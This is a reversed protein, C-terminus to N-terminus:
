EIIRFLGDETSRVPGGELTRANEILESYALNINGGGSTEGAFDFIGLINSSTNVAGNGTANFIEIVDAFREARFSGAGTFGVFSTGKFPIGTIKTSGGGSITGVSAIIAEVESRIVIRSPESEKYAIAGVDRIIRGTIGRPNLDIKELNEIRSVLEPVADSGVFNRSSLELDIQMDAGSVTHRLSTVRMSFPQIRGFPSVSVWDGARLGFDTSKCAGNTLPFAKRELESEIKKFVTEIDDGGNGANFIGQREDYQSVSASNRAEVLVKRRIKYEVVIGFNQFEADKPDGDIYPPRSFSIRGSFLDVDVTLSQLENENIFEKTLEVPSTIVPEGSIEWESGNFKSGYISNSCGNVEKSTIVSRYEYAESKIVNRLESINRKLKLSDSAINVGSALQFPAIKTQADFFELVGNNVRWSWGAIKSVKRMLDYLTEERLLISGVNSSNPEVGSLSIGTYAGFRTFADIIVEYATMEEFIYTFKRRTLKEAEGSCKIIYYDDHSLRSDDIEDIIAIWTISRGSATQTILIQSGLDIENISEDSNISAPIRFDFQSIVEDVSERISMDSVYIFEGNIYVDQILGSKIM